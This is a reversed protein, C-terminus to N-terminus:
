PKRLLRSQVRCIIGTNHKHADHDCTEMRAHAMLSKLPVKSVFTSTTPTECHEIPSYGM